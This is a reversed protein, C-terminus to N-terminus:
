KETLSKIKTVIWNIGSIVKELAGTFVPHVADFIPAISPNDRLSYLIAYLIVLVCVTTFLITFM